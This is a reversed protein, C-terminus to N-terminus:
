VRSSHKEIAKVSGMSADAREIIVAVLEKTLEDCYQFQYYMLLLRESILLSSM